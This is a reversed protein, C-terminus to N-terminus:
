AALSTLMEAKVEALAANLNDGSYIPGTPRRDVAKRVLISLAHNINVAKQRRVCDVIAAAIDEDSELARSIMLATTPNQETRPAIHLMIAFNILIQDRNRVETTPVSALNTAIRINFTAGVRATLDLISLGDRQNLLENLSQLMRVSEYTEAKPDIVQALGLLYEIGPNRAKQQALLEQALALRRLTAANPSIELGLEGVESMGAVYLSAITLVQWEINHTARVSRSPLNRVQIEIRTIAEQPILAELLYNHLWLINGFKGALREDTKFYLSDVLAQRDAKSLALSPIRGQALAIEALAEAVSEKFTIVEEDRSGVSPQQEQGIDLHVKIAEALLIQSNYLKPIRFPLAHVPLFRAFIGYLANLARIIPSPNALDRLVHGVAAPHHVVAARAAKRVAPTRSQSSRAILYNLIETQGEGAYSAARAFIVAATSENRKLLALANLTAETTAKAGSDRAIITLLRFDSRQAAAAIALEVRVAAERAAQRDYANRSSGLSNAISLDEQFTYVAKGLATLSPLPDGFFDLQRNGVSLRKIADAELATVLTARDRVGLVRIATSFHVVRSACTELNREGVLTQLYTRRAYQNPIATLLTLLTKSRGEVRFRARAELAEAILKFKGLQYAEKLHAEVERPSAGLRLEEVEHLGEGLRLLFEDAMAIEGSRRYQDSMRFIAESHRGWVEILKRERGQLDAREFAEPIRDYLGQATQPPFPNVDRLELAGGLLSGSRTTGRRARKDFRLHYQIADRRKPGDSTVGRPNGVNLLSSLAGGAM